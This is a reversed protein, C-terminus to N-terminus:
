TRRLVEAGARGRGEAMAQALNAFLVTLWLWLAVQGTFSRGGPGGGAALNVAFRLTVLVSAVLVVFLVPNRVQVRPDLRRVAAAAARRLIAPRLRRTPAARDFLM